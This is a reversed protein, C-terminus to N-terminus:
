PSFFVRNVIVEAPTIHAVAEAAGEFNDVLEQYNDPDEGDPFGPQLPHLHHWSCVQAIALTIAVGHRVSHVAVERARM